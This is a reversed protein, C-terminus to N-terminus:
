RIKPHCEIVPLVCPVWGVTIYFNVVRMVPDVPVNLAYPRVRKQINLASVVNPVALKSELVYPRRQLM